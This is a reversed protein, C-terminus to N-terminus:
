EDGKQPAPGGVKRAPVGAITIGPETFSRNVVAGAGVTIRDALQVGGFIQSGACLTVHDGIVPARNEASDDGLIMVGPMIRCYEGIQMNFNMQLPYLHMIMVGKGICNLPVHLNYRTQLRILRANYWAARLRHGNNVHYETTRLLTIHRRLVAGESWQLLYSLYNRGHLPFRGCEIALWERLQARTRIRKDESLM